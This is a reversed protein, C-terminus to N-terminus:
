RRVTPPGAMMSLFRGSTPAGRVGEIKGQGGRRVGWNMRDIFLNDQEDSRFTASDILGRLSRAETILQDKVTLFEEAALGDIQHGGYTVVRRTAVNRGEKSLSLDRSM